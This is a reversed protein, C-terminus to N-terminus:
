GPPPATTPTYTVFGLTTNTFTKNVVQYKDALLQLSECCTLCSKRLIM